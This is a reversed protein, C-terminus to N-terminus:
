QFEIVQWTFYCAAIDTPSSFVIQNVELAARAPGASYATQAPAVAYILVAKDPNITTIPTTVTRPPTTPNNSQHLYAYTQGSQVSKIVSKELLTNIGGGNYEILPKLNGIIENM